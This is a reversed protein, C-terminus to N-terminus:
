KILYPYVMCFVGVGGRAWTHEVHIQVISSEMNARSKMQLQWIETNCIGPHIRGINRPRKKEVIYGALDIIHVFQM